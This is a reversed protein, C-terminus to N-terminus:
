ASPARKRHHWCSASAGGDRQDRNEVRLEDKESLDRDTDEAVDLGRSKMTAYLSSCDTELREKCGSVKNGEAIVGHDVLGHVSAGLSGGVLLASVLSSLMM